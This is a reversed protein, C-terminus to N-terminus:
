LNIYDNTVTYYYKKKKQKDDRKPDLRSYLLTGLINVRGYNRPNKHDPKNM